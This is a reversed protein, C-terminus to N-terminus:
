EVKPANAFDGCWHFDELTHFNAKKNARM